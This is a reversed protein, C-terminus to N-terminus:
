EEKVPLIDRNEPKSDIPPTAGVFPDRGAKINQLILKIETNDPNSSQIAEFDATAKLRDGLRVLSLGRFYKANAYDPVLVVARDFAEVAGRYDKDNYKLFGLQFFSTGNNPEIKTANEIVSIAAKLNGSEIEIQALMFAAQTFNSKLDLARLAYERAKALDGKVGELRALILYIAPNTPNAALAEGYTRLATEYADKTGAPVVTEFVNGLVIWNYYNRPNKLVAQGAEEQAKQFAEAVEADINAQPKISGNILGNLRFLYFEALTRHYIDNSSLKLAKEIYPVSDSPNGTQGFVQSGKQFYVSSISKASLLGGWGLALILVIWLAITKPVRLKSTSWSYTVSSTGSLTYFLSLFLGTFVFTLFWILSGPIYFIAVLWLFISVTLSSVLLYRSFQDPIDLRLAKYALRIFLVFFLLWALAGLIGTSIILTPVLGAAFDFDTNWFPTLNVTTPKLEYWANLFRNPGTGFVPDASLVAKGINWTAVWDPKAELYSINLKTSTFQGIYSSGFFAVLSILLVGLAYRPLKRSNTAGELSLAQRKKWLYVSFSLSLLGLLVWLFPFNVIILFCVSFIYVIRLIVRFLKSLALSELSVLSLLLGISFFIGLDNWKGVLNATSSFFTGLTLAQPFFLRVLQFLAVVLLAMFFALYAYFVKEKTKFFVTVLFLTLFCLTIFSATGIEYGYGILSVSAINWAFSGISSLLFVLPISAASLLLLSRPVTVTKYKILTYIFAAFVLIVAISIVLAKGFQSSILPMFFLPAVFIVGLLFASAWKETFLVKPEEM